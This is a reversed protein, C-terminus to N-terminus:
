DSNRPIRENIKQRFFQFMFRYRNTQHQEARLDRQYNEREAIMANERDNVANELATVANERNRLDMQIAVITSGVIQNEERDYRNIEENERVTQELTTVEIDHARLQLCTSIMTQYESISALVTSRFTQNM